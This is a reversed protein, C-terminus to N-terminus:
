HSILVGGGCSGPGVCAVVITGVRMGFTMRLTGGSKRPKVSDHMIFGSMVIGIPKQRPAAKPTKMPEQSPIAGGGMSGPTGIAGLLGTACSNLAVPRVMPRLATLQLLFKATMVATNEPESHANSRIRAFFSIYLEINAPNTEPAARAILCPGCAISSPPAPKAANETAM